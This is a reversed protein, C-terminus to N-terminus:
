QEKFYPFNRAVKRMMREMMENGSSFVGENMQKYFRWMLNGDAGNYIQMTLDGSATSGGVGFVLTKAIAGAESGTKEYAYSCKIVADVGLIKSLSDQLTEDLKDFVGAKKLLANTREVDQFSVTYEESKRLLYTFMGQQMNIGNKLEELRNGEADFGKPLRKYGITVKFPLIAVTKHKVLSEKLNPVSFMQKAAEYQAYSAFYYLCFTITLLSKIKM